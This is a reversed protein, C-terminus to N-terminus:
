AEDHQLPSEPVIVLLVPQLAVLEEPARGEPNSAFEEEPADVPEVAEEGAPDPLIGDRRGDNQGAEPDEIGGGGERSIEDGRSRAPEM